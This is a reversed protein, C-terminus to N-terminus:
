ATQKQSGHFNLRALIVFFMMAYYGFGGLAFGFVIWSQDVLIALGLLTIRFTSGILQVALALRNEGLVHLVTSVPSVIFQAGYMPALLLMIEGAATWNAGFIIPVISPGLLGALLTIPVGIAALLGM